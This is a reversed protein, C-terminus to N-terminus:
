GCEGSRVANSPVLYMTLNLEYIHSLPIRVELKQKLQKEEQFRSIKFKRREEVNSTALLSFSSKTEQYREYLKRDLASLMNYQDLRELFNDLLQSAKRLSHLRNQDYSKLLLDALLYDVTLFQLNQTSLDELEENPSFLSLDKILKQCRVLGRVASELNDRFADSRPDLLQLQQQNDKVQNLTQQISADEIEDM